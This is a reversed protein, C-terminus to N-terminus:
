ADHQTPLTTIWQWSDHHINTLVYFHDALAWDVVQKVRALFVPDITYHPAAGEHQGWTVPIRISKFGQARLGELFPQTVRPNGWATEDTGIADFTNGLNWGPQMAAVASLASLPRASDAAASAGGAALAAQPGALGVTLGLAVAVATM